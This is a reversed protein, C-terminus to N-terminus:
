WSAKLARKSSIEAAEADLFKAPIPLPLSLPSAAGVLAAVAEPLARAAAGATATNCARGGRPRGVPSANLWVVWAVRNLLLLVVGVSTEDGRERDDEFSLM